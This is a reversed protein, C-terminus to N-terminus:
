KHVVIAFFLCFLFEIMTVLIGGHSFAGLGGCLYCNERGHSYGQSGKFVCGLAEVVECACFPIDCVSKAVWACM